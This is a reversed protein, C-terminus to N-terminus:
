KIVNLEEFAKRLKLRDGESISGIKGLRAVMTEFVNLAKDYQPITTTISLLRLPSVGYRSLEKKLQTVHERLAEETFVSDDGEVFIVGDAGAAFAYLVHRLAVRGATPVQTVEVNSQYSARMQGALDVSSYATNREVFALVKPRVGGECIGEIQALLQDETCHNLEIAGRPCRAVCIGCGVCAVPNVIVASLAREVANTPCVEVCIGCNDCRELIIYAVEPSLSIEGKGLFTAARSATAMAELTSERIDKPGLAVGAVFIAERQSDVPKLKFHRELLFGDAGLQMGLRKALEATGRSLVIGVSLVVLDFVGEFSTGLFTDEAQILLRNEDIPVVQAVRGRVFRVNHEQATMYFEEYGKGDARVDMYFIWPEADPVAKQLLMAQKIAVMCGIKCCHKVGKGENTMRSGVCLVFAVKKPPKSDSPRKFGALAIREFQLNTVINPHLGYGYEELANPDLQDYGTCVVIAGVDLEIFEDKQDLNVANAKCFRECLRCVGKTFYLCREKDIVYTRPVAQKFPSYIAKRYTLGVEFESPVKIPCRKECEGCAVCCDEVYRPHKVILVRYNGPSGEVAKVESLTFLKVNPHQAVYVMKPTLICQSCDLTPFTKSLQAMHGGISPSREVLYVRHGKDALEISAIIGAIGGGIVLVDRNILMSKPELPKHHRVRRVASRVLDVAKSTADERDDHVWSCQERVNAMELLYPNLGASSLTRRFTDLHMKPSCSAIVVRNLGHEEIANVIMAQGPDSCVYEHTEAIVVGELRSAEEKVRNVDVTDSINGGCHCIFIGIRPGELKGRLQLSGEMTWGM